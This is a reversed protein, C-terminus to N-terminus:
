YGLSWETQWHYKSVKRTSVVFCDDQKQITEHFSKKCGTLKKYM